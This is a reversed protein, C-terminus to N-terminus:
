PKKDLKKALMASYGKDSGSLISLSQVGTHSRAIKQLFIGGASSPGQCLSCFDAYNGTKRFQINILLILHSIGWLSFFAGTLRFFVTYAIGAIAAHHTGVDLFHNVCNGAAVLAGCLCGVLCRNGDDVLHRALANNVLILCGTMLGAQVLMNARHLHSQEEFLFAPM